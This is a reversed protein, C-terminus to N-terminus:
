ASATTSQIRWSSVDSEMVVIRGAVSTLYTMSRIIEVPDSCLRRLGRADPTQDLRVHGCGQHAQPLPMDFRLHVEIDEGEAEIQDGSHVPHQAANAKLFLLGDASDFRTRPEGTTPGDLRGRYLTRHGRARVSERVPPTSAGRPVAYRAACPSYGARELRSARSRALPPRRMAARNFRSKRPRRKVQSTRM